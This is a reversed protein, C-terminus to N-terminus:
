KVKHSSSVWGRDTFSQVLKAFLLPQKDLITRERVLAVSNKKLSSSVLSVGTCKRYIEVKDSKTENNRMTAM